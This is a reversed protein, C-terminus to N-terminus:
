EKDGVRRDVILNCRQKNKDWALVLKKKEGGEGKLTQYQQMIREKFNSKAELQKDSASVKHEEWKRKQIEYLMEVVKVGKKEIIEREKATPACFYTEKRREFEKKGKAAQIANERIQRWSRDYYYAKYKLNSIKLSLTRPYDNREPLAQIRAILREFDPSPNNKPDKLYLVVDGDIQSLMRDLRDVESEDVSTEKKATDSRIIGMNKVEDGQFTM